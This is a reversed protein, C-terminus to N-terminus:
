VAVESVLVKADNSTWTMAMEGVCTRITSCRSMLGAITSFVQEMRFSSYSNAFSKVGCGDRNFLLLGARKCYLSTATLIKRICHLCIKFLISKKGRNIGHEKQSLLQEQCFQWFQQEIAPFVAYIANCRSLYGDSTAQLGHIRTAQVLM